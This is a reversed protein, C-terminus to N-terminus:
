LFAPEQTLDQLWESIQSNAKLIVIFSDLGAKRVTPDTDDMRTLFGITQVRASPAKNKSADLALKIEEMMMDITMSHQLFLDLTNNTANLIVSKKDSLKRMLEPFMMRAYQTFNKRLGDSLAGLVEVSKAVINVNSDNSLIKLTNVLEYYDDNALKPVPGILDLVIKLAEVKESWKPLDLKAKFETKPLKALLNVTEAFERPDFAAAANAGTAASGSAAAKPGAAATPRKSGRVFKTPAAQGVMLDKTLGEYETQQAQRLNSVIDQVLAPGTWRHIEVLINLAIPRVGNVTSECLAPLAAKVIPLPVVRPGFAKLADLIGQACAPPVKPKKNKTGEILATVTDEAAGAEIFAQVLEECLKVTGPRSSFGKDTVRKMVGPVVSKQFPEVHVTYALVAQIGAEMASANADECMKSFLELFPAVDDNRVGSRECYAKVQDFGEKRLKWNKDTIKAAIDDVSVGEAADAGGVAAEASSSDVAMAAPPAVAVPAPPPMVPAMPADDSGKMTVDEAADVEMPEAKEAAAAARMQAFRSPLASKRQAPQNPPPSNAVPAKRATPIPPSNAVPAKRAAPIPPSNTMRGMPPPPPLADDDGGEEGNDYTINSSISKSISMLAAIDEGACLRCKCSM